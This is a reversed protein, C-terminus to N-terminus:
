RGDICCVVFCVSVRAAPCQELRYDSGEQDYCAHCPWFDGDM